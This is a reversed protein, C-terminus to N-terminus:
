GFLHRDFLPISQELQAGSLARHVRNPVGNGPRRLRGGHEYIIEAYCVSVAFLHRLYLTMCACQCIEASVENVMM